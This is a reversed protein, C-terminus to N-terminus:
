NQESTNVVFFDCSLFLNVLLVLFIVSYRVFLKLGVVFMNISLIKEVENLEYKYNM